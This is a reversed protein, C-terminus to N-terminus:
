KVVYFRDPIKFAIIPDYLVCYFNFVPILCILHEHAISKAQVAPGCATQLTDFAEHVVCIVIGSLVFCETEIKWVSLRVVM